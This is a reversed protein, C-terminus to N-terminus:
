SHRVSGLDICRSDHWACVIGAATIAATETRLVRPGLTAPVFGAEGAEIEEDPTFGGEPGVLIVIRSGAEDDLIRLLPSGHPSTALVINCGACSQEALFEKLPMPAELAPLELRGSQAAAAAVITEWRDKKERPKRNCRHSLLPIFRSVGLETGHRLIEDM